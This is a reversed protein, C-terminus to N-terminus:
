YCSQEVHKPRTYIAFVALSTKVDLVVDLCARLCTLAELSTKKQEIFKILSAIM